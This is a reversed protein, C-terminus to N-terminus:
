PALIDNFTKMWRDEHEVTVSDPVYLVRTRDGPSRPYAPSDRFEAPPEIGPYMPCAALRHCFKEQIERKLAFAVYQRARYMVEEPLHGPILLSDVCDATGEGPIAWSVSLGRERWQKINTLATFFLDIDGEQIQETM